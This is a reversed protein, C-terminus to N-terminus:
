PKTGLWGAVAWLDKLRLEMSHRYCYLIQPCPASPAEGPEPRRSVCLTPNRLTTTAFVASQRADLPTM